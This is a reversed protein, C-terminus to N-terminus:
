TADQLGIMKSRGVLVLLATLQSPNHHGPWRLLSAMIHWKQDDDIAVGSKLRFDKFFCSGTEM